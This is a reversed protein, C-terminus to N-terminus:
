PQSGATKWVQKEAEEKGVIVCIKLSCTVQTDGPTYCTSLHRRPLINGLIMILAFGLSPGKLIYVHEKSSNEM